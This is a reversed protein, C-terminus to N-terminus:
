GKYAVALGAALLDDSINRLSDKGDYMIEAIYRGYIDSKHITVTVAQDALKSILWNRADIAKARVAEDPSKIEPANVRALRLRHKQTLGFGFDIKADVTDGDVIGVIIARYNYLGLM